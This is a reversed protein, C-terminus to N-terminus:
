EERVGGETPERARREAFEFQMTDSLGEESSVNINVDKEGGGPM